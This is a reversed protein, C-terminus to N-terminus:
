ARGQVPHKTTIRRERTDSAVHGVPLGDIIQAYTIMALDTALFNDLARFLVDRHAEDLSPASLYDPIVNLHHTISM